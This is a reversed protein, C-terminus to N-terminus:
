QYLRDILGSDDIKRIFHFDWLSLPHTKSAEEDERVALSYVNQIADITAYPKVELIKNLEDYLHAAAENDLQGEEMYRTRIVEVSKAKHTKFYAIGEVIGKLFRETIDPHKDVFRLNTSITTFWIMPWPDINIVKLGVRRAFLDAPPTVFAADVRGERVSQWIDAVKDQPELRVDGKDEDVGHQKLFLWANLTPHTGRTGITKGKLDQIDSVDSGAKLVLSHNLFNVTQGLYVWDGGRGRGAYPTTHNGSVFEVSGRSVDAHADKSSIFYNYNVELEYKEWAGSEAIVHLLALHNESRYPFHVIDMTTHMGKWLM